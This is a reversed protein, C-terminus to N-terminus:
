GDVRCGRANWHERSDASCQPGPLLERGSLSERPDYFRTTALKCAYGYTLIDAGYHGAAGGLVCSTVVRLVLVLM